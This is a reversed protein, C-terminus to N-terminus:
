NLERTGIRSFVLGKQLDLMSQVQIIRDDDELSGFEVLVFVENQSLQVAHVTPLILLDKYTLAEIVRQEIAARTIDTNPQGIFEELSAGIQPSLVWDGKTTKIRFLAEQAVQEDGYTLALDGNGTLVLEGDETLKIDVM